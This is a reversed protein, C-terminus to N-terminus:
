GKRVNLFTTLRTVEFIEFVEDRPQCLLLQRGAATLRKHLGILTGLMRSGLYRVNDLDLVVIAQSLQETLAALPEALAAAADEDLCVETGGFRIVAATGADQVELPPFRNQEAM